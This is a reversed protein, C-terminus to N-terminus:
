KSSIKLYIVSFYACYEFAFRAGGWKIPFIFFFLIYVNIKKRLLETREERRKKKLALCHLTDGRKLFRPGGRIDLFNM